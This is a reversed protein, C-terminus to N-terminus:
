KGTLIRVDATVDNGTMEVRYNGPTRVMFEQKATVGYGKNYGHEEILGGNGADYVTVKFYANPSPYSSPVVRESHLGIDVTKEGSYMKPVVDFKIYLPPRTLDQTFVEKQGGVFGHNFSYVLNYSETYKEEYTQITVPTGATVPITTMEPAPTVPVQTTIAPTPSLGTGPTQMGSIMPLGVFYGGAIVALLIIIGAILYTKGSGGVPKVPAVQPSAPVGPVTPPVAPAASPEVRAGCNECFKKGPAIETGCSTCLSM